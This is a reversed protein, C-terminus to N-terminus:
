FLQNKIDDHPRDSDAPKLGLEAPSDAPTNEAFFYEPVGGGAAKLGTEPDIPVSVIGEPPVLPADPVGRLAQGMFNIWIPLAALSGTEGPGMDKPTDFGIWAVGVLSPHFGCFWADVHDNTTGTKGALDQRGLSMARAATGYRVVDRM